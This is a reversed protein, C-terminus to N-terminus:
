VAALRQAVIQHSSFTFQWICCSLIMTRPARSCL